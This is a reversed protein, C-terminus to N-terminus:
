MMFSNMSYAWLLLIIYLAPATVMGIISLIRGANLLPHGSGRKKADLNLVFGLFGPITGLPLLVVSILGMIFSAISMGDGHNATCSVAADTSVSACVPVATAASPEAQVESNAATITPNNM